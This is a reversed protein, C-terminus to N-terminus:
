STASGYVFYTATSRVAPEWGLARLRGELEAPEYFIKVVRYERGDNLRRVSVDGAQPKARVAATSPRLSDVFFARGGPKLFSRVRAWFEDFLAPPVHSLWFGFFVVDYRREPKWDFIDAVVYEIAAGAPVRKRNLALAEPSGDLATVRDAHELLAPTWWGTGAALELVDGLPGLAAIAARVEDVEAFWRRNQEPGEDYRGRRLFYEDYEPARERYYTQQEALIRGPDEPGGTM